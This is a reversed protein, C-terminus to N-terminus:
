LGNFANIDDVIADVYHNMNKTSWISAPHAYRLVVCQPLEPFNLHVRKGLLVIIDNENPKVRHIWLKAINKRLAKHPYYNSDYLNTKHCKYDLASIVRDILKGSKTFSCLPTTNPKNHIGVFIVRKMTQM